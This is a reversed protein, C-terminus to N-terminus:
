AAEPFALELLAWLALWLFVAWVAASVGLRLRSPPAAADKPKAESQARQALCRVCYNIGEVKTTCEACVRSRCAM